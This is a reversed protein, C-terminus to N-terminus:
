PADLSECIGETLERNATGSFVKFETFLSRIPKVPGAHTSGNKQNEM